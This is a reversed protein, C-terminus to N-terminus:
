TLGSAGLPPVRRTPAWPVKSLKWSNMALPLAAEVPDISVSSVDLASSANVSYPSMASVM